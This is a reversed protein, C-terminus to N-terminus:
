ALTIRYIIQKKSLIQTDPHRFNVYLINQGNETKRKVLIDMGHPVCNGDRHLLWSTISILRVDDPQIREITREGYSFSGEFPGNNELYSIIKDLPKKM